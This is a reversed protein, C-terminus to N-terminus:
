LALDDALGATGAVEGGRLYVRVVRPLLATTVEYNITGAMRAVEEATLRGEGQAGILVVEDGCSVHPIGSVDVVFQDMCVRGLIPARRGAVLVSGRNSLARHFGDGYGVPVLGVRTPRTTVFTRGYSIGAGAPLERVRGIRSKLTLAPRIDLPSPWESSPHLGYLGIGPRVADFHAERLTMAAASNAAHRLGIPLGARDLAEVVRTFSALQARVATRDSADATALHTFIGEVRIGELAHLDRVFGPVEDPLLGYRGMGTDVKVHVPAVTGAASAERAIAGAVDASMPSATLAHRVIAGAAAPPAPGMVLIPATIGARRLQVGEGVRHVALRSAGAELAARAVQAAGHGYANAKVVAIVEVPPGVHARFARVNHAIADLDIEAWTVAADPM